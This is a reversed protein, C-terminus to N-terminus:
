GGSRQYEDQLEGRDIEALVHNGSSTKKVESRQKTAHRAIILM